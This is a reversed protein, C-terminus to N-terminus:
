VAIFLQPLARLISIADNHRQIYKKATENYHQDAKAEVLGLAAIKKEYEDAWTTVRARYETWEDQRAKLTDDPQDPYSGYPYSGHTAPRGVGRELESEATIRAQRAVRALRAAETLEANGRANDHYYSEDRNEVPGRYLKGEIEIVAWLDAEDKIAYRVIGWYSADPWLEADNTTTKMRPLQRFVALTMQKGSVTLAKIEVRLTSLTAETALIETM